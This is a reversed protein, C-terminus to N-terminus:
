APVARVWGRVRGVGALSRRSGEGEERVQRVPAQGEVEQHGRDVGEGVRAPVDGQQVLPRAGELGQVGEVVAGDGAVGEEDGNNVPAEDIAGERTPERVGEAGPAVDGHVAHVAEEGEELDDDGASVRAGENVHEPEDYNQGEVEREGVDGLGGLAEVGVGEEVGGLLLVTKDGGVDEADGNGDEDDEHDDPAEDPGAAPEGLLFQAHFALECLAATGHSRGM